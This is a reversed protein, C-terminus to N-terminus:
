RKKPCQSLAVIHAQLHHRSHGGPEPAKHPKHMHLVVEDGRQVKVIRHETKTGCGGCRRNEVTEKDVTGM